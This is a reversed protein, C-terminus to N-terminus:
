QKNQKKNKIKKKRPLLPVPTFSFGFFITEKTLFHLCSHMSFQKVVKKRARKHLQSPQVDSHPLLFIWGRERRKMFTNEFIAM